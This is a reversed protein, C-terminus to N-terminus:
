IPTYSVTYVTNCGNAHLGNSLVVLPIEMKIAINPGYGNYWSSIRIAM